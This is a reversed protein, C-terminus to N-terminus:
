QRNGIASQWNAEPWTKRKLEFNFGVPNDVNWNAITLQCDDINTV